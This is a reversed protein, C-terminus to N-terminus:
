RILKKLPAPLSKQQSANFVLSQVTGDYEVNVQNEQPGYIDLFTLDLITITNPLNDLSAEQYIYVYDGEVEAGLPTLAIPEGSDGSVEFAESVYLILEAQGELSFITTSPGAIVNRLAAQVDHLHLRHTIEFSKESEVWVVTTLASSVRHAHLGYSSLLIAASAAILIKSLYKM